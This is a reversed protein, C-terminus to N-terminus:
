SGSSSPKSSSRALLELSSDNLVKGDEIIGCHGHDTYQCLCTDAIVVLEPHREKVFRIAKQVIGEEAYAQSGLADKSAPVGFLIVSPIGLSVVEDIEVALLDLSMQYVGPMSNVPNKVNEGEVVFIPYIFDEKRLVTETRNFSTNKSNRLRRNRRFHLTNM